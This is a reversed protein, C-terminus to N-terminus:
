KTILDNLVVFCIDGFEQRQLLSRPQEWRLWASLWIGGSHGTERIRRETINHLYPGHVGSFLDDNQDNIHRKRWCIRYFYHLVGHLMSCFFEGCYRHLWFGLDTLDMRYPRFPGCTSLFARFNLYALHLTYFAQKNIITASGISFFTSIIFGAEVPLHM